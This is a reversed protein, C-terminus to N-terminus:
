VAERFLLTHRAVPSSSQRTTEAEQGASLNTNKRVWDRATEAEDTRGLAALVYARGLAVEIIERYDRSWEMYTFAQKYYDEAQEYDGEEQAISALLTLASAVGPGGLNEYYALCRVAYARAVRADGLQLHAWGLVRLTDALRADDQGGERHLGELLALSTEGSRRADDYFGNNFANVATDLALAAHFVRQEIAQGLANQSQRQEAHRTIFLHQGVFAGLIGVACGLLAAIIGSWTAQQTMSTFSAVFHEVFVTCAFVCIFALAIIFLGGVQLAYLRLAVPLPRELLMRDDSPTTKIM